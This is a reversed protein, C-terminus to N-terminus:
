TKEISSEVLSGILAGAVGAVVLAVLAMVVNLMLGLSGWDGHGCNRRCHTFMDGARRKPPQPGWNDERRFKLLASQENASRNPAWEGM